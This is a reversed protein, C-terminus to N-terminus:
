SAGIVMNNYMRENGILDIELMGMDSRNCPRVTHIVLPGKTMDLLERLLQVTDQLFM